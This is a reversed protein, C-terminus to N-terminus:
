EEDGLKLHKLYNSYNNTLIGVGDYNLHVGDFCIHKYYYINDNSIYDFGYTKCMGKLLSNLNNIQNRMMYRPVMGSIAVRKVGRDKLECGLYAINDVAEDASIGYALDNGGCHIIATQPAAYKLEVETHDCVKETDAGPYSCVKVYQGSRRKISGGKVHKVISSGLLIADINRPKRGKKVEPELPPPFLTPATLAKSKRVPAHSPPQPSNTPASLKSKLSSKKQPERNKSNPLPLIEEYQINPKHIESNKIIQFQKDKQQQLQQKFNNQQQKQMLCNQEIQKSQSQQQTKLTKMMKKNNEQQQKQNALELRLGSVENALDEIVSRLM